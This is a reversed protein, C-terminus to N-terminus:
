TRMKNEDPDNVIRSEIQCLSRCISNLCVLLLKDGTEIFHIAGAELLKNITLADFQAMLSADDMTILYVMENCVKCLARREVNVRRIVWSRETEITIRTTRKM